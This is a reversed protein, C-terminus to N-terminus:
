CALVGGCGVEQLDMKINDEWRRRPRGLPRKGEPKGVLVKYVGRGQGMCAVHGDWRMRRSKIVWVINPSSYLDNLEENHM